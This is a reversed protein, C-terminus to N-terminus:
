KITKERTKTEENIWIKIIQRYGKDHIDEKRWFNKYKQRERDNDIIKGKKIDGTEGEDDLDADTHDM